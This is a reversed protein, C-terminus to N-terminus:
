RPKNGGDGVAYLEGHSTGFLFEPQGDGDIDCSSVESAAAGLPLEWRVKGTAVEVCAFRGDQRGFGMLWTGDPLRMFGEAAARAEGVEPLRYWMPKAHASMAAVFYHGDVLCVTPEGSGNELVAPLTYLGLSPQ